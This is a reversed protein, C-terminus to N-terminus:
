MKEAKEVEKEFEVLAKRAQLGRAGSRLSADKDLVFLKKQMREYKLKRVARLTGYPDPDNVGKTLQKIDKEVEGKATARDVVQELVTQGGTGSGGDKWEDDDADDPIGTQQLIGVRVEEPIGPILKESIARLLTSKGAGNRGVLAYRAGAKLKLDANSLIETGEAGAKGKGKKTTTSSPSSAGPM